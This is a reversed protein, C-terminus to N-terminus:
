SFVGHLFWHKKIGDFFVWYFNGREHQAIFYDRVVAKKWWYHVIREPQSIITLPGQWYLKEKHPGIAQPVPLLWSPRNFPLENDYPKALPERITKQVLEPVVANNDTLWFCNHAGLRAIIKNAFYRDEKFADSQSFLSLESQERHTLQTMTLSLSEIPGTLQVSELTLRTLELFTNINLDAQTLHVDFETKKRYIDKLIWTMSQGNKQHLRLFHILDELLRRMPFLLASQHHIVDIFEITREFTVQPKFHRQVDPRKGVLQQLYHLTEKGLRKTLSSESLQFLEGVIKLGIAQIKKQTNEDLMLQEVSLQHIREYFLSENFTKQTDDWLSYSDSLPSYSFVEAAKPTPGIALCFTMNHQRFCADIHSLLHDIGHFLNLSRGIEMMLRDPPWLALVPSFPYAQLAMQNLQQREQEHNREMVTLEDLLAYGTSVSQGERVGRQYAMQNCCVIRQKESIAFAKDAIPFEGLWLSELPLLAFRICLWM